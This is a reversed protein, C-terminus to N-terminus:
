GKLTSSSKSIRDYISYSFVFTAASLGISVITVVSENIGEVGLKSLLSFSFIIAFVFILVISGALSKTKWNLNDTEYHELVNINSICLILSFTVFDSEHFLFALDATTVFAFFLIRTLFPLLGIIVTYFLWKDKIVRTTKIM